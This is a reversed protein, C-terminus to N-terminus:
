HFFSSYLSLGTETEYIETFEERTLMEEGEDTYRWFYVGHEAMDPHNSKWEEAHEPYESDEGVDYVWYIVLKYDEIRNWERDYYYHTYPECSVLPVYSSATYMLEGTPGCFFYETMDNQDMMICSASDKDCAFIGWIRKHWNLDSIAMSDQLILDDIGDGNLDIQRWEYEGRAEMFPYHEAMYDSLTVDDNYKGELHQFNGSMLESQISPKLSYFAGDKLLLFQGDSTLVLTAPEYIFKKSEDSYCVSFFQIYVVPYNDNSGIGVMSRDIFVPYNDEILSMSLVISMPSNYRRGDRTQVYIYNNDIDAMGKTITNYEGISITFDPVNAAARTKAEDYITWAEAEEMLYEAGYVNYSVFGVYEDAVWSGKVTNLITDIEELTFRNNLQHLGYRDDYIRDNEIVLEEKGLVSIITVDKETEEEEEATDESNGKESSVSSQIDEETNEATEGQCGSLCVCLLLALFLRRIQIRM